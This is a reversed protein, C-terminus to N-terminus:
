VNNRVPPLYDSQTVSPYEFLESGASRDKALEKFNYFEEEKVPAFLRYSGALRDLGDAWKEKDIQIVKM